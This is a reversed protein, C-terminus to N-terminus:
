NLTRLHFRIYWMQIFTFYVFYVMINVSVDFIAQADENAQDWDVDGDEDRGANCQSVLIKEFTGTSDSKLDEM